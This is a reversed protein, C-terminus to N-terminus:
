KTKTICNILSLIKEHVKKLENQRDVLKQNPIDKQQELPVKVKKGNYMVYTEKEKPLAGEDVFNLKLDPKSVKDIENDRKVELKKVEEEKRLQESDEGVKSKDGAESVRDLMSQGNSENAKENINTKTKLNEKNLPVETKVEQTPLSQEKPYSIIESESVYESNGKGINKLHEDVKDLSVFDYKNKFESLPMEIVKGDEGAMAKATESDLTWSNGDTNGKKIGRYITQAKDAYDPLTNIIEKPLSKKSIGGNNNYHHDFEKALKVDEGVGNTVAGKEDPATNGDTTLM